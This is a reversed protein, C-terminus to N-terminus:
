FIIYIEKGQSKIGKFNGYEDYLIDEIDRNLIYTVGYLSCILLNLFCFLFFLFLSNSGETSFMM